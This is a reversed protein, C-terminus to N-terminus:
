VARLVHAVNASCCVRSRRAGCRAPPADCGCAPSCAAACTWSSSCSARLASCAVCCGTLEACHSPLQLARSGRLRESATRARLGARAAPAAVARHCTVAKIIHGASCRPATPMLAAQSVAGTDAHTVAQLPCCAEDSVPLCVHAASCLSVRHREQPHAALRRGPRAQIDICYEGDRMKYMQLEFKLVREGGSSRSASSRGGGGVGGGGGGGGGGGIRNGLTMVGAVETDSCGGEGEDM